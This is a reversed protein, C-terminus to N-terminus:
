SIGVASEALFISAPSRGHIVEEQWQEEFTQSGPPSPDQAHWRKRTRIQLPQYRGPSLRQLERFIDGGSREPNALLWSTIQEWEGAFPDQRRAGGAWSANEGRKSATCPVGASGCRCPRPNFSYYTPNSGSM